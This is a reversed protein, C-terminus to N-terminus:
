VKRRFLLFFILFLLLVAGGVFLPVVINHNKRQVGNSAHRKASLVSMEGTHSGKTETSSPVQAVLSLSKMSLEKIPESVPQKSIAGDGLGLSASEVFVTEYLTVHEGSPSMGIAVITHYGQLNDPLMVSGELSGDVAVEFMGLTQPDSRIELQVLSGPSFSGSPLTFRVSQNSVISESELFRSARYATSLTVGLPTWYQSPAISPSCSECSTVTWYPDYNARITEAIKQHGYPTPHFSEAGIFKVGKLFELPAIDDGLRVANMAMQSGECLREGDLAHTIDIFRVGSYQAAAALITNLYRLSEEVYVREEQSLLSGTVIDCVAGADSNIISPYGVLFVPTGAEQQIDDLLQVLDPLIGKMEDVVSPRMGERAWECTGPGLCTKLKGILDIDNGGVGLSALTADALAASELQRQVDPIRSGSCAHNQAVIGWAQGLLIPYSRTSVHCHNDWTNSAPLYFSDSLEGEGSTYSDGFSIYQAQQVEDQLSLTARVITQQKVVLVSMRLGNGTFQPQYARVYGPFLDTKSFSSASCWETVDQVTSGAGCDEVEYVALGQRWGTMAVWQGDNSVTLGLVPQPSSGTIALSAVWVVEGTRMDIRAVGQRSVEVVAWRQTHSLGITTMPASDVLIDGELGQARYGEGEIRQIQKSFNKVLRYTYSGGQVLSQQLLTDESQSYVCRELGTCLYQIPYYQREGPYSIVYEYMGSNMIRALRMKLSTGFVCATRFVESGAVLIRTYNGACTLEGTVPTSASLESVIHVPDNVWSGSSAAVVHQLGCGIVLLAGILLVIGYRM